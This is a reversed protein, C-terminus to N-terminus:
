DRLVPPVGPHDLGVDPAGALELRRPDGARAEERELHTMFQESASHHDVMRVGAARFSHLVAVNLEVLARDRWLSTSSRTDLGMRRALVPLQNYRDVDALNRAAIETSM